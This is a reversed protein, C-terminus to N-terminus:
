LKLFLSLSDWFTRWSVFLLRLRFYKFLLKVGKVVCEGILKWCDKYEKWICTVSQSALLQQRFQHKSNNQSMCNELQNLYVIALQSVHRHPVVYFVVLWSILFVQREASRFLSFSLIQCTSSTRSSNLHRNVEEYLSKLYIKSSM